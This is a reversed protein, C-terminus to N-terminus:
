WWGYGGGYGGGYNLPRVISHSALPSTWIPRILHVSPLRHYSTSTLIPTTSHLLSPAALVLALCLCIFVLLKFM